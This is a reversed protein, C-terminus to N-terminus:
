ARKRRRFPSRPSPWSRIRAGILTDITPSIGCLLSGLTFGAVGVLFMKKRGVIDGLRGFPLLGLAFALVYAAVVWEIQSPDARLNLQMSPLAVNVITVDMLNMFNALLLVVLAIWRRPDADEVTQPVRFQAAM